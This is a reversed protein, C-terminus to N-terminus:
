AADGNPLAQYPLCHTGLGARATNLSDIPTEHCLIIRAYANPDVNYLYNPIGEGYNDKFILRQRIDAGLLIPSRTTSQVHVDHGARELARGLRFAPHMLEGTGLVLLPAERPLDAVLAAVDTERLPFGQSIGFRGGTTALQDLRRRNDGVANPPPLDALGPAPSFAIEAELASILTLPLGLRKSFAAASAQGSFDTITVFHVRQLHPARARYAAALNCLTAGTSIEDDILILERAETFRRQHEPDLPEYLIQDPAHCHAEQFALSRCGPLRYRTSHLFLAPAEPHQELLAEFVGQGLGTATEALAVLLWPGQDLKLAQALYRHIQEMAAPRAPWHKGLVKSVFLFGRKPNARAAFGCLHELPFAARKIQVELRGTALEVCLSDM